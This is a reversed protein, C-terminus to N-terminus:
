REVDPGCMDGLFIEVQVFVIKGKFWRPTMSGVNGNTTRVHYVMNQNQQWRPRFQLVIGSM